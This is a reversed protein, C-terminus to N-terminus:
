IMYIKLSTLQSNGGWPTTKIKDTKGVNIMQGLTSLDRGGFTTVQRWTRTQLYSMSSCVHNTM